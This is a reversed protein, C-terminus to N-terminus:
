ENPRTLNRLSPPRQIASVLTQGFFLGSLCIPLMPIFAFLSWPSSVNKLTPRLQLEIAGTEVLLVFYLALLLIGFALLICAQIGWIGGAVIRDRANERLVAAYCFLVATFAAYGGFATLLTAWLGEFNGGMVRLTLIGMFGVVSYETITELCSFWSWGKKRQGDM